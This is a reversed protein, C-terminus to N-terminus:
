PSPNLTLSNKGKSLNQDITCGFGQRSLTKNEFKITLSDGASKLSYNSVANVIASQSEGSIHARECSYYLKDLILQANRSELAYDSLDKVRQVQPLLFSLMVMSTLIVLLLELSLQGRM